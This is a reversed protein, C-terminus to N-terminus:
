RRSNGVASGWDTKMTPLERCGKGILNENDPTGSLVEGIPNVDDPVGGSHHGKRLM